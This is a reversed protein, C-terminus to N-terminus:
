GRSVRWSAMVAEFVERVRRSLVETGQDNVVVHDASGRKTDLPWQANERRALEEPAWGRVAVRAQRAKLPADVFLIADCSAAIGAEFLLPCDEVVALSGPDAFAARRGAERMAGVLPHVLAELWAREEPAAFVKAAIAARDPSGDAAFVGAGWRAALQARAEVGELAARAMADADLVACGLGALERAVASKGAGPAGALGLVPKPHPVPPSPM